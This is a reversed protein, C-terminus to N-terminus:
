RLWVDGSQSGPCQTIQVVAPLMHERCLRVPVGRKLSPASNAVPFVAARRACLRLMPRPRHSSCGQIHRRAAMCKWWSSQLPEQQKTFGMWTGQCVVTCPASRNMFPPSSRIRIHQIGLEERRTETHGAEAAKKEGKLGCKQLMNLCCRDGRLIVGWARM